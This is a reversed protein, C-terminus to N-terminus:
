SADTSWIHALFATIFSPMMPDLDAPGRVIRIDALEPERERALHALIRGRLLEATEHAQLIKVQAIRAGALVSYWGEEAVLDAHALGTEEALERWINGALDVSDGVIDDPDPTGAPFYIKGANSTHPSMVGLLFAGDAGRLAGSSFCNTVSGDPHGWDRWAIFSAFDTELYAGRFVAGEIAHDHLILVRGNWLAPTRRKLTAFHRGIEIRRSDAFPWPQPAYRMDLREVRVVPIATMALRDLGAEAVTM